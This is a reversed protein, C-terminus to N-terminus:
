VNNSKSSQVLKETLSLSEALSTKSMVCEVPIPVSEIMGIDKLRNECMIDYIKKILPIEERYIYLQVEDHVQRFLQSKKDILLKDILILCIKVIDAGTGQIISNVGITRSRKIDEIKRRRGFATFVANNVDANTTTIEIWKSLTQYKAFFKNRFTECISEPVKTILSMKKAGGGYCIEYTMTKSLFRLYYGLKTQYPGKKLLYYLPYKRPNPESKENYKIHHSQEITKLKETTEADRKLKDKLLGLELVNKSFVDVGSLIEKKLLPDESLNALLILEMQSFDFAVIAYGPPATFMNWLDDFVKSHTPINQLNPKSCSYRGTRTFCQSYNARLRNDDDVKDLVEQCFDIAKKLEKYEKIKLLQPYITSYHTLVDEDCSPKGSKTTKFSKLKLEKYLYNSLQIHSYVNFSIGSEKLQETVKRQKEVYNSLITKCKDINIYLGTRNLTATAKIVRNEFSLVNRLRPYNESLENIRSLFYTFLRFTLYSDYCGYPMMINDPVKSYDKTKSSGANGSFLDGKFYGEIQRSYYEADLNLIEKSLKKLSKSEYKNLLSVLIMVDFIDDKVLQRFTNNILNIDFQANFFVKLISSEFLMKSIFVEATENKDCLYNYWFVEEGTFTFSIGFVKDRYPSLGTTETDIIVYKSKELIGPTFNYNSKNLNILTCNELGTNKM